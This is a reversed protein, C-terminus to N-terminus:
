NGIWGDGGGMWKLPLIDYLFAYHLNSDFYLYEYAYCLILYPNDRLTNYSM